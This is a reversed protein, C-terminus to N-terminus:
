TLTSIYTWKLLPYSKGKQDPNLEGTERSEFVYLIEPMEEGPPVPIFPIHSSMEMEPSEEYMIEPIWHKRTM